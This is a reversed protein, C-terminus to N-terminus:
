DACRFLALHQPADVEHEHMILCPFGEVFNGCLAIDGDADVLAHMNANSARLRAQMSASLAEIDNTYFPICCV